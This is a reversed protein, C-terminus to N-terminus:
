TVVKLMGNGAEPNFNWQSKWDKHVITRKSFNWLKFYDTCFISVNPVTYWCPKWCWWCWWWFVVLISNPGPTVGNSGAAVGAVAM